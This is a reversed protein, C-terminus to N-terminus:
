IPTATAEDTEAARGDFKDAVRGSKYGFVHNVLEGPSLGCDLLLSPSARGGGPRGQLDRQDKGVAM